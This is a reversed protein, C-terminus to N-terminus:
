GTVEGEEKGEYMMWVFGSSRGRGPVQHWADDGFEM